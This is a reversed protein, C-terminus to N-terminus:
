EHVEVEEDGNRRLIEAAEEVREEPSQVIVVTNGEQVKEEYFQSRDEPIGYDILAGALGGTLAGALIGSIPGVALIPGVGPVLLAGAGLFLGAVAGIGSGVMTGDGGMLNFNGDITQDTLFDAEENDDSQNIHDHQLVSIDDEFGQSRLESVTKKAVKEDPFTAIIKKELKEGGKRM